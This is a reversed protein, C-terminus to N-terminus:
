SGNGLLKNTVCVECLLLTLKGSLFLYSHLIIYGTAALNNTCTNQSVM